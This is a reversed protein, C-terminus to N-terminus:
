LEFPLNNSFCSSIRFLVHKSRSKRLSASFCRRCILRLPSPAFALPPSCCRLPSVSSLAKARAVSCVEVHKQKFAKKPNQTNDRAKISITV